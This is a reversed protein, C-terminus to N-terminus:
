ETTEFLVYGVTEASHGTESDRSAEEDIRVDVSASDRYMYRLNATDRDNVTQMDALFHPPLGFPTSYFITHVRDTVEDATAGVEFRRGNLEGSSHEWAIYAVTEPPHKSRNSEQEQLGLQFQYQDVNRLRTAVANAGNISTVAALVVPASGFPATLTVTLFSPRAGIETSGAEIWAGNPLQHRGREVVIYSLAEEAHVGNLYDWEQIRVWFGDSDVGEIRVVAPDQDNGSIPKAVVIPDSFSEQFNVRTLNHDLAIEGVEIPLEAGLVQVEDIKTITDSGGPGTVTLTVDFWGIRDYSHTPNPASSTSGDGFDWLYGTIEGSSASTFAVALPAPGTTNSANFGAEPLPWRATVLDAKTATASGGAGTVTLSVTYTGATTYTHVATSGTSTAGDGFDWRWQDIDGTSSDTFLVSLPALGSTTSATFSAVPPPAAVTVLGTKTETASGGPGTVTLSVSYTGPSVYTHTPSAATSTTGDGFDWAYTDIQGTSADTFTVTHPVVGSSEAAVFGPAPPVSSTAITTSIEESFSSCLTRDQVCARVAFFYTEGEQLGTVTTANSEADATQDYQGSSVGWKVEYLDV